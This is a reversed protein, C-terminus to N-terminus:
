GQGGNNGERDYVSEESDFDNDNSIAITHQDLVAVGEIKEPAGPLSNLDAVLSKPLVRVEAAAPDALSELATSTKPDDWKTGLINTAQSLDVSYLKAVLDTRELILLTTPNLAVVGSLKMEDPTNKSSHDFDTSVEFRYVYEATVKESGIDFVVV